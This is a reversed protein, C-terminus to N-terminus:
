YGFDTAVSPIDAAWYDGGFLESYTSGRPAFDVESGLGSFGSPSGVSFYYPVVTSTANPRPIAAGNYSQVFVQGLLAESPASQESTIFYAGNTGRENFGPFPDYLTGVTFTGPAAYTYGTYSENSTGQGGDYLYVFNYQTKPPPPPPVPRELSALYLIYEGLGQVRVQSYNAGTNTVNDDEDDGDNLPEGSIIMADRFEEFTLRRGLERVALQQALVAIGAIHPAAQSTGAYDVTGGNANAGTILGGPAFIDTLNPDRQSFSTIRFADTSYDIAGSVFTQQGVNEDWTAGVALAHPDAAPYAVGPISGNQFFGNGAAAVTIVGKLRLLLLEDTIGGVGDGEPGIDETLTTNNGGGLSMNISAINYTDANRIVWQLANELAGPAVTRKGESNLQDPFVKLHIINAGPAMGKEFEDQSAVISSVNSGHNDPDSADADNDAWDYSYVIRDAIGNGDNDPGFFPHDLDIGTDLIVTSFGRGDIGAFYADNRFGQIFTGNGDIYPELRILRSSEFTQIEFLADSGETTIGPLNPILSVNLSYNTAPDSAKVQINYTGTELPQAIFEDMTGVETSSQLFNGKSDFLFLDANGNLGTLTLVLNSSAGVSFAYFDDPDSLSVQEQYTLTTSSGVIDLATELTNGPDAIVPRITGIGQSPLPIPPAIAVVPANKLIAPDPLSTPPPPLKLEVGQLVALFEGTTKDQIITNGANVTVNLNELTLGKTLKIFDEGSTFGIIVDSQAISFGGTGPAIAFVDAGAGGVLTDAGKGGRMTDDGRGGNMQDNGKGGLIFDDSKGGVIVDDNRYGYLTDAGQNGYLIDEGANGYLLDRGENGYLIDALGNGTITDAGQKAFIIDQATTGILVNAFEDGYITGDSLTNLSTGSSATRYASNHPAIALGNMRNAKGSIASSVATDTNGSHTWDNQTLM